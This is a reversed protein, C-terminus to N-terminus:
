ELNHINIDYYKYLHYVTHADTKKMHPDLDLVGRVDIHVIKMNKHDLKDTKIKKKVNETVTTKKHFKQM